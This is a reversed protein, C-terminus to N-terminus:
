RAAAAGASLERLATDFRADLAALVGAVDPRELAAEVERAGQEIGAPVPEALEEGADPVAGGARPRRTLRRALDASQERWGGVHHLATRLGHEVVRLDATSV